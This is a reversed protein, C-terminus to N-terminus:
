RRRGPLSSPATAVSPPAIRNSRGHANKKFVYGARHLARLISSRHVRAKRGVLRNYAQTLEDTTGDPDAAMAERLRDWAVAPRRGGGRPHAGSDGTRRTREVWRQLSRRSIAFTQAVADYSGDGAEYARVARHRLALPHPNPM